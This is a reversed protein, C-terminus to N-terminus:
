KDQRKNVSVVKGSFMELVKKVGPDEEKAGLQQEDGVINENESLFDNNFEEAGDPPMDSSGNRHNIIEDQLNRKLSPVIKTKVAIDNNNLNKRVTKIVLEKHREFFELNYKDPLQLEVLNINLKLIQCKKLASSLSPKINEIEEIIKDWESSLNDSNNEDMNVNTNAANEDPNVKQETKKESCPKDEEKKEKLEGLPTQIEREASKVLGEPVSTRPPNSKSLVELRQLVADLSIYPASIRYLYIQLVLRFEGSRRMEIIAKDLLEINRVLEEESFSEQLKSLVEQSIYTTNGIICGSKILLMAHFCELINKALQSLDFGQQFMEDLLNLVEGPNHNSISALMQTICEDPLYGLIFRVDEVKINGQSFSILQDLISLADRLSGNAALAIMPLVEAEATIGEKTAIVSIHNLTDNASLPHFVFRQCRSFITVPIKHPDTTALIFLIHGPPEELTKLLANYADQTIQHAEDIIYVKYKGSVPTFKVNERLTRMEDIGRNSAGDIEIIDIFSGKNIEICAACENCPEQTDNKQCNLAKALIRAMTTKGVGRPGSFIYAHALKNLKLANILTRSIHDQGIVESFAKPRYKRALVLYGM